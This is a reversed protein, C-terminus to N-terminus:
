NIVSLIKRDRSCTKAYSTFKNPGGKTLNRDCALVHMHPEVNSFLLAWNAIYFFFLIAITVKIMIFM